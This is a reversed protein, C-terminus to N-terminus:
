CVVVNADKVLRAFRSLMALEELAVSEEPEAINHTRINRVLKVYALGLDQAGRHANRWDDPDPFGDLRLRKEGPSNEPRFAAVMREPEWGTEVLKLPLHLDFIATAAAQIADRHRGDGWREAAIDWVWPHMRAAALM